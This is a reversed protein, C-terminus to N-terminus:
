IGCYIIKNLIATPQVNNHANTVTNHGDVGNDTTFSHSNINNAYGDSVGAGPTGRLHTQSHDPTEQLVLTHSEAGGTAGLTDGNLGGSLGTLRNASSGGMDDQGAVVRGRLDPLNFTTTGNGVGFTTGIAGFLTAYTTRSVAQGYCFLWGSPEATGAFDIVAGIVTPVSADPGFCDTGDCAVPRASGAPVSYGVGGAKITQAANSQNVVFYFKEVSPVTITYSAGPSGTLKLIRRRAQDSVFDASTLAVNGSITLTTVGDL